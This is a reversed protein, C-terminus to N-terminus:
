SYRTGADTPSSPQTGDEGKKDDEKNRKWSIKKTIQDALNRVTKKCSSCLDEFTTSIDVAGPETGFLIVLDAEERHEEPPIYETRECRECVIEVVNRKAM